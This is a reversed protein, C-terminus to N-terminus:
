LKQQTFFALALHACRVPYSTGGLNSQSSSSSWGMYKQLNKVFANQTGTSVCGTDGAGGIMGEGLSGQLNLNISTRLPFIRSSPHYRIPVLKLNVRSGSPETNRLPNPFQPARYPSTTVFPLFFSLSHLCTLDKMTQPTSSPHQLSIM